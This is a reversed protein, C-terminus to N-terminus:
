RSWLRFHWPQPDLISWSDEWRLHQDSHFKSNLNPPVWSKWTRPSMMRCDLPSCWLWAIATVPKWSPGLPMEGPHGFDALSCEDLLCTLSLYTTKYVFGQRNRGGDFPIAVFHCDGSITSRLFFPHNWNELSIVPSWDMGQNRLHGKKSLRVMCVRWHRARNRLSVACTSPQQVTTATAPTECVASM